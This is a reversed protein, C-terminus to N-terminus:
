SRAAPLSADADMEEDAADHYAKYASQYEYYGYGYGHGASPDFGNLIFGALDMNTQRCVALVRRIAAKPTTGSRVIILQTDAVASGLLGDSLGLMPTCDVFIRDFQGQLSKVLDAFANAQLIESPNPVRRGVPLLSLHAISTPIIAHAADVEGLLIDTLGPSRPSRFGVHQSPRRLDADLILVREGTQAFTCALNATCTSKGEGPMASTIAIVRGARDVASLQLATRINRYGELESSRRRIIAHRGAGAAVAIATDSGTASDFSPIIGLLPRAGLWELDDPSKITRDWQERGIVLFGGLFLGLVLSMALDLSRMPRAPHLPVSAADVVNVSSSTIGSSVAADRQKQLLGDYLQHESDAQRKLIQYQVMKESLDNFTATQGAVATTLLREREVAAGYDQRSRQTIRDQESQIAADLAAAQQQLQLVGPYKPGFRVELQALSAAVEARKQRLQPILVDTSPLAAGGDLRSADLM